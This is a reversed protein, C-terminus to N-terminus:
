VSLELSEKAKMMVGRKFIAARRLELLFSASYMSLIGVLRGLM